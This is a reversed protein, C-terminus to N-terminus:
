IRNLDLPNNIFYKNNINKVEDPNYLNIIGKTINTSQPSNAYIISQKNLDIIDFLMAMYQIREQEIIRPYKLNSLTYLADSNYSDLIRNEDISSKIIKLATDYHFNCPIHRFRVGALTLFLSFLQTSFNYKELNYVKGGLEKIYLEYLRSKTVDWSEDSVNYKSKKPRFLFTQPLFSVLQYTFPDKSIILSPCKHQQQLVLNAIVVSTEVNSDNIFFIDNLYPCLISLLNLNSKIVDQMRPNISMATINAYNYNHYHSIIHIPVNDTYVIYIRTNVRHRTEYYSRLHACLNIMSSTVSSYNDISVETTRFLVKTLSNMDLYIDLDNSNSGYFAHNTLAYLRDYKIYNSYLVDEISQHNVM